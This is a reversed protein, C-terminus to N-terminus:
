WFRHAFDPEPLAGLNHYLAIEAAEYTRFGYAKRTTLKVKNNFGEVVGSSLAGKARFWNLILGRHNRLTRAVKKMPELQSRMTRVCWQDLFKGAWGPSVYEWFRQFDERLLHARVSKLNYKLLESLKVTQKDTLNEPRKLLCWRSHKLVPEYGDSKMQKAEGARVEDIAQNLKQMIHFRDLVHIAQSAKEAIVKLYPKWMDSCVFEIQAARERGLGDFFKHFSAETRDQGIWLLRKCGEDIQYVLTLYKHGKKWAVEDVGIARIGALDRHALGWWVAHQVSRFVNQWTTDFAEAVGTWSLRRAWGALFWRYTTTLQNKGDGWPVQEVKVGCTRCDVRRMAYVFFVPIQWLPVYEFRRAPLRDYGPRRRGCGSCVAQGNARPEIPIEIATKGEVFRAAQYVFSKHREVQNLITKL